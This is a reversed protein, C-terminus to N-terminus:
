TAVCASIGVSWCRIMVRIYQMEALRKLIARQDLTRRGAEPALIMDHYAAPDGLGYIASVTAVIIVDDQELLAKTASLRMQEIQDNIAADKEIFTDSSPM